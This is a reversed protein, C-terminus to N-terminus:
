QRRNYVLIFGQFHLGLDLAHDACAKFCKMSFYGFLHQVGHRMIGSVCRAKLGEM